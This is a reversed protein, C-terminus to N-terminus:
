VAIGTEDNRRRGERAGEKPKEDEVEIRRGDKKAIAATEAYTEHKRTAPHDPGLFGCGCQAYSSRQDSQGDRQKVHRERDCAAEEPPLRDEPRIAIMNVM